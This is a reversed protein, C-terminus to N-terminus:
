RRIKAQNKMMKMQDKIMPPQKKMRRKKNDENSGKDNSPPQEKMKCSQNGENSAKSQHKIREDKTIKTQDKIMSLQEKM